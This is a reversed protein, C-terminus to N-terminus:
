TTFLFDSNFDIQTRMRAYSFFLFQKSCEPIKERGMIQGYVGVVVKCGGCLWSVALFGDIWEQLAKM